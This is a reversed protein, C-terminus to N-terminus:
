STTKAIRSRREISAETEVEEGSTFHVLCAKGHTMIKAIQDSNIIANGADILM